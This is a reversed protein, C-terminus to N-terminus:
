YPKATILNDNPGQPTPKAFYISIHRRMIFWTVSFLMTLLLTLVYFGTKPIMGGVMVGMLGGMTGAIIGDLIAIDDKLPLSIVGGVLVGIIFGVVYATGLHAKILCGVVMCITMTSVMGLSMPLSHVFTNHQKKLQNLQNHKQWLTLTIHLVLLFCIGLISNTFDWSITTVGMMHNMTNGSM